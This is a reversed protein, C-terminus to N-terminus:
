KASGSGSSSNSSSSSSSASAAAAGAAAPGPTSIIVESPPAVALQMGGSGKAESSGAAATPSPANMSWDILPENKNSALYANAKSFHKCGIFGTYASLPSPHPAELVCNGNRPVVKGREQAPKGWLMYVVGKRKECVAKLMATTFTEWGKGAHANAKSKEVTLVANLLLVGQKAWYELNGHAARKIGVDAEVEKLINALSPPAAVGFPVSFALGHAQGPGHYPDQGLIVVRVQDLPTFFLANFVDKAPPYIPASGKRQVEVFDFLQKFYPKKSEAFVVPAWTPHVRIGMAELQQVALSADAGGTM